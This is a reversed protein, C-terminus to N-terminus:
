SGPCMLGQDETRERRRFSIDQGSRHPYAGRQRDPPRLGKDARVVITEGGLRVMVLTSEGSLGVSYIPATMHGDAADEVVSLDELRIGLIVGSRDGGGVDTRRMRPRIRRPKSM